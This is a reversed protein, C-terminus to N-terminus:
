TEFSSHAPPFPSLSARCGEMRSSNPMKALPHPYITCEKRPPIYRLVRVMNTASTGGVCNLAVSPLRGFREQIRKQLGPQLLQEEDLVMSAGLLNLTTRLEPMDPRSRVINITDIGWARALQIVSQGVASNAGNQILLPRGGVGPLAQLFPSSDKIMRYASCPNVSVTAASVVDIDEHDIPFVDEQECVAHTRWTGFSSSKPLVWDGPKCSSVDPGVQLVRAVGENGGVAYDVGDDPDIRHIFKPKIPYVGQIQNIDAPNIPSALIELQIQGPNLPRALDLSLKAM